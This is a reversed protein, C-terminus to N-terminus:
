CLVVSFSYVDPKEILQQRTFYEPDIYGIAGKVLTIINTQDPEPGEKSLGFDSIKTMFNEDLLYTQLSSMVIYLQALIFTNCITASGFMKHLTNM